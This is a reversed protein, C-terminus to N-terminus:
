REDTEWRDECYLAAEMCRRRLLGRRKKGASKHWMLFAACAGFDWNTNHLRLVTSTRFGGVGINFVLSVMADFQAQTTTVKIKSNVYDVAWEVDQDFLVEARGETIVMGKQVDTGTHGWGITWVGPPDAAGHYAKLELKEFSKILTRGRSGLIM